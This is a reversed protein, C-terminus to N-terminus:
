QKHFISNVLVNFNKYVVIHRYPLAEPKLNFQVVHGIVSFGTIPLAFDPLLEKIVQDFTFNEYGISVNVLCPSHVIEDFVNGKSDVKKMDQNSLNLVEMNNLTKPSNRTTLDIFQPNSYDKPLEINWQNLENMWQLINDSEPMRLLMLKRLLGNSDIYTKSIKPFRIFQPLFPKLKDVSSKLHKDCQIGVFVMPVDRKFRSQDLKMENLPPLTEKTKSVETMGSHDEKKLHERTQDM